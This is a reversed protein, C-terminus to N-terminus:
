GYGCKQCVLFIGLTRCKCYGRFLRRRHKCYRRLVRDIPSHTDIESKLEGSGYCQGGDFCFRAQTKIHKSQIMTQSPVKAMCMFRFREEFFGGKTHNTAVWPTWPTMQNLMECLQTNCMRWEQTNGVCPISEVPPQPEICTRRRRQIGGNCNASCESWEAWSTWNGKVPPLPCPPHGQCYDDEFSTGVCPRGGFRPPPNSCYRHRSRTATSGCTQTCASWSTWDTWQGHATCNTVEVSAGNCPQGGYYPKPNDCSRSRCKCDGTTGDGGVQSCNEWKSWDSWGGNVAHPIFPCGAMSQSWYHVEPQGSPATTCEGISDDWGCYPDNANICVDSNKFRSCRHVPVKIVNHQTSIYIAMEDTSIRMEKVPKHDGNPVIKIEEVLCTTNESSSLLTTLKRIKGDATAVFVVRYMGQKGRVNDVVVHTWRENDAHVLPITTEPQVAEDMFQYKSETMPKDNSRKTHDRKEPCQTLPKQGNEPQEHREWASRPSEQYKFPGAFSKDLALINYVCVASGPISNIPTNFVAYIYKDSGDDLLFTAQLEDYYFPYEGPLSCNLRSKFFTTWTNDFMGGEDNKCLRAVRSYMRKGCNIYEVAVERFFFYVLDGIEYSSVFDPENLWKSNAQATRLENSDSGKSRYIAPDRNGTGIHTAGYIDGETTIITTSNQGPDNPSVGVGISTEIIKTLNNAPRWQCIPSFANTGCVFVANDFKAAADAAKTYNHLLLVRIYNHCSEESEGKDMCSSFEKSKFEAHEILDLNDLSLRFISNRAGVLLQDNGEDVTLLTFGVLDEHNFIPAEEILEEYSTYRFDFERPFSDLVPELSHSLVLIWLLIFFSVFCRRPECM